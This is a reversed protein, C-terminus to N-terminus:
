NMFDLSQLREEQRLVSLKLQCKLHPKLIGAIHMYVEEEESDDEAVAEEPELALSLERENVLGPTPGKSQFLISSAINPFKLGAITKVNAQQLKDVSWMVQMEAVMSDSLYPPLEHEEPPKSHYSMKAGTWDNLFIAAAKETDPIGGKQLYGRKKALFTLFELANRFDPVNYQLMIQQKDSHKHLARVADQPNREKETEPLSRLALAVASSSPAAIISPSDIMKIFKNIHVEQVCKTTGREVGVNCARIGKMSNILSSKGVNPFGVIGVKLQNGEKQTQCYDEFLQLLSGSGHCAVGKSLDIAGNSVVTKEQIQTSAKFAIVPFEQLYELWKEVNEKPVLDIKNLVFVLKKNGEHKLVKEELQPCRCGLPDRADLVVAIVDSADIVQLSVM